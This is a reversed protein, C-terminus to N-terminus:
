LVEDIISEVNQYFGDAKASIIENAWKELIYNLRDFGQFDLYYPVAKVKLEEFYAKRVRFLNDDGVRTGVLAYHYKNSPTSKLCHELIEFEQVSSGFFLVIHETFINELFGRLGEENSYNEIYQAATLIANQPDNSSGHIQYLTKHDIRQNKSFNNLQTGQYNIQVPTPQGEQNQKQKEKDTVVRLMNEYESDVNTSIKVVPKAIAKEFGYLLEYPNNKKPKKILKGAYFGKLKDADNILSHFISIIQKPAYNESRLRLSETHNIYNNEQLYKIAENALENWLPIGLLKSVGAGVFFAIKTEGDLLIEKLKPPIILDDDVYFMSKIAAVLNDSNVHKRIEKELDDTTRINNKLLHINKSASNDFLNLILDARVKDVISNKEFIYELENSTITKKISREM